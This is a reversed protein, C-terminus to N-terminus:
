SQEMDLPHMLHWVSVRRADPDDAGAEQFRQVVDNIEEHLAKAQAPTVLVHDDSVGLVDRWEVPWAHEVDFWRQMHDAAIRVYDRTLWGLSTEADDDGAFDSPQWSHYRSSAEWLRRKGEGEGTDVVLGVSELKRLHYSTAGTNTDLRDALETATAPGHIRLASLLRSRLPHALVKVAAADLRINTPM